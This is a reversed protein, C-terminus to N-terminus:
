FYSITNGSELTSSTELHTNIIIKGYIMRVTHYEILQANGCVIMMINTYDGFIRVTLWCLRIHMTPHITIKTIIKVKFKYIFTDFVSNRVHFYFFKLNM